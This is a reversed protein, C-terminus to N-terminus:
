DGESTEPSTIGGRNYEQYQGKAGLWWGSYVNWPWWRAGRSYVQQRGTMPEGKKEFTFPNYKAGATLSWHRSVAFSGEANITALNLYDLVNTGVSYKQAFSTLSAAVLLM